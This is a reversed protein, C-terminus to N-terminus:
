LAAVIKKFLTTFVVRGEAIKADDISRIIDKQELIGKDLLLSSINKVSDQVVPVSYFETLANEAVNLVTAIKQKISSESYIDEYSIVRGDEAKQIVDEEEYLRHAARINAVESSYYRYLLENLSGLDKITRDNEKPLGVLNGYVLGAIYHIIQAAIFEKSYLFESDKNVYFAKGFISPKHLPREHLRKVAKPLIQEDVPLITIMNLEYSSMDQFYMAASALAANKEAIRKIFADSSKKYKYYINIRRVIKNIVSVLLKTTIGFASGGSSSKEGLYSLALARNVVSIIVGHTLREGGLIDAIYDWDVGDCLINNRSFERKMIEVAWMQDIYPLQYVVPIRAFNDIFEHPIFEPKNTSCIVYMGGIGKHNRQSEYLSSFFKLLDAQRAQNPVGNSTFALHFEDFYVIYFINNVLSKNLLSTLEQVLDLKKVKGDEIFGEFYKPDISIDEVQVTAKKGAEQVRARLTNLFANVIFTKGSNSPGTLINAYAIKSRISNDLPEGRLAASIFNDVLTFWELFGQDRFYDFYNHDLTIAGSSADNKSTAADELNEHNSEIPKEGSLLWYMKNFLSQIGQFFGLSKCYELGKHSAAGAAVSAMAVGSGLPLANDLFTILGDRTQTKMAANKGMEDYIHHIKNYAKDVKKAEAIIESIQKDTVKDLGIGYIQEFSERIDSPSNASRAFIFEAVEKGKIKFNFDKQCEETIEKFLTNFEEQASKLENSSIKEIERCLMANVGNSVLESQCVTAKSKVFVGKYLDLISAALKEREKEAIKSSCVSKLKTDIDDSSTKCNIKISCSLSGYLDNIVLNLGESDVNDISTVIGASQFYKANATANNIESIYQTKLPVSGALNIQAIAKIAPDSASQSEHDVKSQLDRLGGIVFSYGKSLLSIIFRSIDYQQPIKNTAGLYFNAGIITPLFYDSFVFSSLKKTLKNYRSVSFFADKCERFVVQGLYLSLSFISKGYAMIKKGYARQMEKFYSADYTFFSNKLSRYTQHSKNGQLSFPTYAAISKSLAKEEKEQSFKGLFPVFRKKTFYDVCALSVHLEALVTHHLMALHSKTIVQGSNEGQQLEGAIASLMSLREQLRSNMKNLLPLVFSEQYKFLKSKKIDASDIEFFISRLFPPKAYAGRMIYSICNRLLQVTKSLNDVISTYFSYFNDNDVTHLFDFFKKHSATFSNYEVQLSAFSDVEKIKECFNKQLDSDVGDCAISTLVVLYIFFDKIQDISYVKNQHVTSGILSFMKEPKVVVGCATAVESVRALLASLKKQLLINPNEERLLENVFDEQSSQAMQFEVCYNMVERLLPFLTGRFYEQEGALDRIAAGGDEVTAAKESVEGKVFLSFCLFFLLNNIKKKM